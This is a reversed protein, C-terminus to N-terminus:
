GAIDVTSSLNEKVALHQCGLKEDWGSSAYRGIKKSARGFNKGEISDVGLPPEGICREAHSWGATTQIDSSLQEGRM